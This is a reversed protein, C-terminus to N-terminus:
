PALGLSLDYEVVYKSPDHVPNFNRENYAKNKFVGGRTEFTRVHKIQIM